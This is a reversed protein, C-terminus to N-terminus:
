EADFTWRYSGTRGNADTVQARATHRGPRVSTRAQARWVSDSRQELTASLPAGDLQLEIGTIAADVRSGPEPRPLLIWPARGGSGTTPGPTPTAPGATPGPTAGALGTPTPTATPSVAATPSVGATPTAPAVGATVTPPAATARSAATPTVGGLNTGVGAPTPSAAGGVAGPSPRALPDTSVRAALDNVGAVLAGVASWFLSGLLLIAVIAVMSAVIRLASAEQESYGDGISREDPAPRPRPAGAVGAVM